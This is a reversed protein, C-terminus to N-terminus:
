EWYVHQFSCSTGTTCECVYSRGKFAAPRMKGYLKTESREYMSAVTNPQQDCQSASLDFLGLLLALIIAVLSTMECDGNHILGCFM